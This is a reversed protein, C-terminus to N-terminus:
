HKTLGRLLCPPLTPSLPSIPPLALPHFIAAPFSSSISFSPVSTAITYISWVFSMYLHRSPFGQSLSTRIFPSTLISTWALSPPLPFLHVSPSSFILPSSSHLHYNGPLCSHISSPFLALICTCFPLLSSPSRHRLAFVASLLSSFLEHKSHSELLTLQLSPLSFPPLFSPPIIHPISDAPVVTLLPLPFHGLQMLWNKAKLPCLFMMLSNFSKNLCKASTYYYCWTYDINRAAQRINM